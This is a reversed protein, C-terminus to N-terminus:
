AHRLYLPFYSWTSLLVFAMLLSLVIMEGGDELLTVFGTLSRAGVSLTDVYAHIGDAVGAFIFLLGFLFLLTRSLRRTSPEIIYTYGLWLGLPLGVLLWSLSESYLCADVSFVAPLETNALLLRGFVEHVQLADDLFVWLFTLSWGAYAVERSYRFCGYLAAAASLEKVYGFIEPIGRDTEVRWLSAAYVGFSHFGDPPLPALASLLIFTVDLIFLGLCVAVLFPVWALKLSPKKCTM